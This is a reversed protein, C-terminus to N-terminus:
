KGIKKGLAELTNLINESASGVNSLFHNVVANRNKSLDDPLSLVKEVGEIVDEATSFSVSSSKFLAGVEADDFVFTPNDFFLIPKNMMCYEIFISSNDGIFVDGSKLLGKSDALNPLFCCNSHKKEIAKLHGFLPSNQDRWLNGHGMVLVNMLPYKQCLGRVFEGGLTCFLSKENWHSSIVINKNELNLNYKSLFDNRDKVTALALDDSRAFGTIISQKVKPQSLKNISNTIELSDNSANSFFVNHCGKRVLNDIYTITSKPKKDLNGYANGHHTFVITTNRRFWLDTWDTTLVFHWKKNGAKSSPLYYKSFIDSKEDTITYCNLTEFTIGIKFKKNSEMKKIIPLLCSMGLTNRIVFLVRIPGISHVLDDLTRISKYIIKKLM